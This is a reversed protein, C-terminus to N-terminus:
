GAFTPEGLRFDRDVRWDVVELGVITACELDPPDFRIRAFIVRFKSAHVGEAVGTRQAAGFALANGVGGRGM